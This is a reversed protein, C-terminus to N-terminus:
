HYEALSGNYNRIILCRFRAELVRIRLKTQKNISEAQKMVEVYSFEQKRSFNLIEVRVLSKTTISRLSHIQYESVLCNRQFLRASISILVLSPCERSDFM